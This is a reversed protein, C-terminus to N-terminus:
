TPRLGGFVGDVVRRTLAAIAKDDHGMAGLQGDVVLSVFGHVASSAFIALEEPRGDKRLTGAAQGRAIAEVLVAFAAAGAQQLSPPACAVISPGFMVKYHAPHTLAFKVYGRGSAAFTDEPARTMEDRMSATLALFGEEAVAALLAGKDAFHRYPAAQSVGARRAAERLTFGAPGLERVLALTADLM